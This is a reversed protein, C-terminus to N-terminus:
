AAAKSILLRGTCTWCFPKAFVRNFYDIFNLLKSRLDAVSTFSGRPDGEPLDGRLGGRDPEAV